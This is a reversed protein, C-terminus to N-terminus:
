QAQPRSSGNRRGRSTPCSRVVACTTRKPATTSPQCRRQLHSQPPHHRYCSESPSSLRFSPNSGTEGSACTTPSQTLSTHTHTKKTNNFLVTIFFRISQAHTKKHQKDVCYYFHILHFVCGTHGERKIEAM